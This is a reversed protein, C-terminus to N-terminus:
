STVERYLNILDKIVKEWTFNNLIHEKLRPQQSSSMAELIAKKISEKSRPEIYEVKDRFYDKPGGYRTVAVNAGALAAELAVLGTGEIISPLVFVKCAGYASILEQESIQGLIKVNKVEEAKKLVKRAHSNELIPGVLVFDLSPLSKAVDLLRIINKRPNGIQGVYLVYDKIKYRRSFIDPNPNFFKNDVGNLIIKIKDEPVGLGRKIINKEQTSRAVFYDGKRKALAYAKYTTLIPPPLERFISILLKIFLPSNKDIIPSIVLHIESPLSRLLFYNRMDACFLHILDIKEWNYRTWPDFLEIEIEGTKELYEKTKIVQTLVGGGPLAITPYGCFVVKLKKSLSGM